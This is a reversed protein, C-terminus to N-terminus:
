FILTSTSQPSFNSFPSPPLPPFCVRIACTQEIGFGSIEEPDDGTPYELTTDAVCMIKQRLYEFCGDLHGVLWRERSGQEETPLNLRSMNAILGVLERRVIALCYMEHAWAMAYLNHKEKAEDSPLGPPLRQERITEDTLHLLGNGNPLCIFADDMATANLPTLKRRTYTHSWIPPPDTQPQNPSPNPNPNSIAAIQTTVLIISVIILSTVIVTMISILIAKVKPWSERSVKLSGARLYRPKIFRSLLPEASPRRHPPIDRDGGVSDEDVEDQHLLRKESDELHEPSSAM